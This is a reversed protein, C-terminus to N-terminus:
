LINKFVSNLELSVKTNYDLYLTKDQSKIVLHDKTAESFFSEINLSELLPAIEPSSEHIYQTLDDKFLSASECLMYASKHSPYTVWDYAKVVLPACVEILDKKGSVPKTMASMGRMSFAVQVRNEVIVARMDKGVENALTEVISTINKPNFKFSENLHSARKHDVVMQRSLEKTFPHNAEGWMTRTELLEKVVSSTLAEKLTSEKYLRGNRNEDFDQVIAEFKLVTGTDQLIRPTSKTTAEQVLIGVPKDYRSM